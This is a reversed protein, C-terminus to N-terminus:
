LHKSVVFLFRMHSTRHKVELQFTVAQLVPAWSQRILPMCLVTASWEWLKLIVGTDILCSLAVNRRFDICLWFCDSVFSSSLRLYLPAFLFYDGAFMFIKSEHKCVVSLLISYVRKFPIAFCLVFILSRNYCCAFVGIFSKRKWSISFM